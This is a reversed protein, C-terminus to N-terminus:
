KGVALIKERARDRPPLGTSHDRVYGVEDISIQFAPDSYSFCAGKRGPEDSARRRHEGDVVYMRGHSVFTAMQAMHWYDREPGSFTEDAWRGFGGFLSRGAYREPKTVREENLTLELMVDGNKWLKLNRDGGEDPDTLAIEICEEGADRALAAIAWTSLDFLHTCHAGRNFRRAIADRGAPLRSGVFQELLDVAGPCTTKPFRRMEADVATVVGDAHDIVVVMDHFDDFLTVTMRGPTPTFTIRRRFVGTGYAPNIPYGTLRGAKDEAESVGPGGRLSRGARETSFM